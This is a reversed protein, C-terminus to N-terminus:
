PFPMFCARRFIPYSLSHNSIDGSLQLYRKTYGEVIELKQSILVRLQLAAVGNGTGNPRNWQLLINLPGAISANLFYPTSPTELAMETAIVSGASEGAANSAFMQFSYTVGKTLNSRAILSATYFVTTNETLYIM